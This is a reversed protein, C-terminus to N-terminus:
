GRGADGGGLQRWGLARCEDGEHFSVEAAPAGLEGGVEVGLDAVGSGVLEGEGPSATEIAALLGIVADLSRGEEDFEVIKLAVSVVDVRGDAFELAVETVVEEALVVGFM